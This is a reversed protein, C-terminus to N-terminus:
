SGHFIDTAHFVFGRRDPEPIYKDILAVILRDVEPWQRDGHVLVGAVTLVPANHHIGAEDHYIMRVLNHGRLPIHGAGHDACAPANM